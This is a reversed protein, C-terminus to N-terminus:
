LQVYGGYVGCYTGTLCRYDSAHRYDWATFGLARGATDYWGIAIEVKFYGSGLQIDNTPLYMQQGQALQHGWVLGPNTDRVQMWSQTAFNWQSVVIKFRVIQTGNTARSSSVLPGPVRLGPYRTVYGNQATVINQGIAPFVRCGGNSYANGYTAADSRTATAGLGLALVLAVALPLRPAM